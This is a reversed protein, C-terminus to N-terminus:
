VVAGSSVCIAWAIFALLIVVFVVAVIKSVLTM